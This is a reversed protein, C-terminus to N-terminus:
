WGHGVTIPQRPCKVHRRIASWQYNCGCPLLRLADPHLRFFSNVFDQEGWTARRRGTMLYHSATSSIYLEKFGVERM